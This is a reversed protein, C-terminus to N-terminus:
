SRRRRALVVILGLGLAMLAYTSPEPVPTFNVFLDNGINSVFFHGTGLSNQFNSTNFQFADSAFGTIGGSTQVFKWSYSNANNFNAVLASNNSLDLSYLKVNFPTASTATITLAGSISLLDWQSGPTGATNNIDFDFNGGGSFTTAGVSLTGPSAGPSVTGGTSVTVPGSFSGTGGLIGGSNINMTGGGTNSGTVVLKGGNIITPGTFTNNGSLTITTGTALSLGGPGSIVGSLNQTGPSTFNLTGTNNIPGTITGGSGILLTAGSGVSTTIGGGITGTLLVINGGAGSVAFLGTGTLSGQFNTSTNAVPMAVTFTIGSALDITSGLGSTGLFGAITQNFDVDLISGTGLSLQTTAPLANAVGVNLTGGTLTTNGTYTSAGTLTLTGAGDKRLQGTGSVVGAYSSADSRNFALTANNTVNSNLTGTTGGDGISVTGASITVGSQSVNGTLSLTGAGLKTSTGGGSITGAFTSNDSRNVTVAGNNTLNGSIMGTTGGNGIALLGSAEVTVAGSGTASGTANLLSLTGSTVTTGGSFTNAGTLTLASANTLDLAGAGSIVGAYTTNSGGHITLTKGSAIDTTTTSIASALSGITQNADVDFTATGSLTLATGTSLANQVGIELIGASIQTSGTFTSAGTLTLKGAGLKVFSGTGLIDGAYTSDNSRNFTVTGSNTIGGSVAGTTGGAGISLAAGSAITVNGSGTASGTANTATLTGASVTTGGSYTNAGSLTLNGAGLKQVAGSGSITEAFLVADSRNFALTSNNVVSGAIGGSTAGNGITLTGAAITTGGSLTSHNTLTLNGAGHKMLAGSGSIVGSFSVADSRNFTLTTSASTAINGALSGSTGGSGITLNGALLNTKGAFASGDGTITLTGSGYKDIVGTGTIAGSLTFSDTGGIGLGFAGSAYSTNVVLANPITLGLNAQGSQTTTLKPANASSTPATTANSATIPGTGLAAANRVILTGSILSTGGTYNNGSNSLVVSGTDGRGDQRGIIVGSFNHATILATNVQLLGGNLASFALKNANPGSTPAFIAAGDDLIAAGLTGVGAFSANSFNAFDFNGYFTAPSMPDESDFGFTGAFSAPTLKAILSSVADSTFGVNADYVGPSTELAGNAVGVYSGAAATVGTAPLASQFAFILGAGSNVVYTGIKPDTYEGASPDAALTVVGGAITATRGAVNGRLGSSLGNKTEFRLEDTSGPTGITADGYLVVRNYLLVKGAGAAPALTTGADLNVAGLGAPSTTIDYPMSAYTIVSSGSLLLSGANIDLGGSFTNAGTLTLSGSGSKYLHDSGSIVGALTLNGSAVNITTGYSTGLFISNHLFTSTGTVGMIGDTGNFDLTGTGVPGSTIATVAGAGNVTGVSSSGLILTDNITTGGSFTSAGSLILRGGGYGTIAGSGSIVGALTLDYGQNDFTIDDGSGLAIANHLTRNAGFVKLTADDDLSLPGTGVPGSTVAGSTGTSSSALKLYGDAVTVGGSFTNAGGLIVYGSGTKIIGGSGSITGLLTLGYSDTAFTANFSGLNINNHLTTDSGTVGLTKSAGFTLTGTGIPGSTAAGATGVSSTGLILEGDVLEFGGSFTNTAGLTLSFNGTKTIKHAGSIVGQALVSTANSAHWSQNALLQIPLSSLLTITAGGNATIGGSGLGLIAGGSGALQYNVSSGNLTISNTQFSSSLTVIPTGTSWGGFTLSTSASSSTPVVNGQWNAATGFAGSSASPSWTFQARVTAVLGLVLVLPFFARRTM